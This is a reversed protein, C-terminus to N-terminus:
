SEGDHLVEADARREDILFRQAMAQIDEPTVSELVEIQTRIRDLRDAESQADSAVGLWFGNNERAQRVRELVPQRARLLFDESVPEARLEAALRHMIARVEETQAPDIVASMQITGYDEFDSSTGGGVSPSYTAALEERLTEIAKLRLVGVLMSHVMDERFDGDDMTRWISGVLAQDEQGTHTFSAVEDGSLDRFTLERKEEYDSFEAQREPLAGFNQAVIAIVEDPDIDGVVGIEIAGDRGAAIVTNRLAERDVEALAERTLAATYRSQTILADSNLGYVSAPQSTINGWASDIVANFRADAEPRLGIDTLYAAGTNMSMLLDDRNTVGGFGFRDTGASIGAGVQMGATAETIEDFSHRGLGGVASAIQLYVAAAGPDQDDIAFSGGDMNVTYRVRNPEFDTQKINLRVNNAFTVTRIGLDEIMEDSVVTGPMGWDAYAFAVAAEEAPAAVAVTRSADYAAEVAAEAGDLEKATVRVLPAGESWKERFYANIADLTLASEQRQYLEYWYAPTSIFNDEAAVNVLAMALQRTTRGDAQEAGRRLANEYQTKAYTLEAETFGYELARRLEQEAIALGEAWAGDRTSVSVASIDALGEDDSLSFGGGLIPSNERNAIRQIRRDFMTEALRFMISRTRQEVTDAPDTYPSLQFIAVSEGISPEIFTDFGRERQFDVTGFEFDGGADGVGQWDAFRERIDAEMQDVDFDGVVILTTNEPRYTARYLNRLRDAPADRLVEDTGIPFRTNYRTGPIRFDFLDRFNDLQPTDRLRRESVIVERERDVAEETFLLESATERMLFLATDLGEENANPIDLMYVTEDFSTYANTDAGFAAGLRELLPIMEGEPVNTSGNFAMHEIFHALGRENEAEGLSGFDVHMRFAATNDPTDNFRIAYRMGNELMGYRIDPDVEVDTAEIGWGEVPGSQALAPTAIALGLALSAASISGLLTRRITM